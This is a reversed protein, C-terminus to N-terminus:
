LLPRPKHLISLKLRYWPSHFDSDIDHCLLMSLGYSILYTWLMLTSEEASTLPFRIVQTQQYKQNHQQQQAYFNEYRLQANEYKRM